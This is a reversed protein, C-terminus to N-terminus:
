SARAIPLAEQSYSISEFDLSKLYEHIIGVIVQGRDNGRVAALRDLAKIDDVPFRVTTAKRDGRHVQPM